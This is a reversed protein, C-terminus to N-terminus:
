LVVVVDKRARTVAVYLLRYALDIKEPNTTLGVISALDIYSEDYTSGQLKHITSAYKYKLDAYDEKIAFYKRWLRKREDNKSSYKKLSFAKTSLSKLYDRYINNDDPQIAKFTRGFKDKAVFYSLEMESHFYKKANVVEITESNQFIRKYGENFVLTDGVIIDEQPVINDRDHWYKFRLIRNFEDVTDNAFAAVIKNNKWWEQKKTFTDLFDRQNDYIKLKKYKQANFIQTLPLYDKSEICNKLEVAIQKVYSDQAQRVVERLTHQKSLHIVANEENENSVPPLQYRDGIFLISKLKHQALNEELFGFLENDVMSSEDVILIDLNKEYDLQGKDRARKWSKTGDLYDTHLSIDLYSHLTRLNIRIDQANLMYRAVALAKHTPSVLLIKYDRALFEKVLKSTVFTKGVGAFGNLSVFSDHPKYYNASNYNSLIEEFDKVICDFVGQQHPTLQSDKYGYIYDDIKIVVDEDPIKQEIMNIIGDLAEDKEKKLKMLYLDIIDYDDLELATKLAELRKIVEVKVSM